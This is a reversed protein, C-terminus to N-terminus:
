TAASPASPFTGPDAWQRNTSSAVAASPVDRSSTVTVGRRSAVPPVSASDTAAANRRTRRSRLVGSRATVLSSM